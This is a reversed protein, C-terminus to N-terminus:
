YYLPHSRIRESFSLNGNSDYVKQHCLKGKYYVNCIGYLKDYKYNDVYTKDRVYTYKKYEVLSKYEIHDIKRIRKLCNILKQKKSFHKNYHRKLNEKNM